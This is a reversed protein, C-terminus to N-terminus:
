RAPEKAQGAGSPEAANTCCKLQRDLARRAQEPWPGGAEPDTLSACTYERAPRTSAKQARVGHLHLVLVGPWGDHFPSPFQPDFLRMPTLNKTSYGSLSVAKFRGKLSADGGWGPDFQWNPMIKPFRLFKDTGIAKHYMSSPRKVYEKPHWAVCNQMKPFNRWAQIFTNNVSAGVIATNWQKGWGNAIVNYSFSSNCIPTLDDLIVSDTDIYIGGFALLIHFRIM